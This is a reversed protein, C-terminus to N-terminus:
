KSFTTLTKKRKTKTISSDNNYTKDHNLIDKQDKNSKAHKTRKEQVSKNTKLTKLYNDYGIKYDEDYSDPTDSLIEIAEENGAKTNEHKSNIEM